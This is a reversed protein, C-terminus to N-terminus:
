PITNLPWFTRFKECISVTLVPPGSGKRDAQGYFIWEKKLQGSKTQSLEIGVGTM